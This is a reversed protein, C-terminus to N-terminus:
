RWSSYWIRFKCRASDCQCCMSGDVANNHESVGDNKTCDICVADTVDHGCRIHELRCDVEKSARLKVLM